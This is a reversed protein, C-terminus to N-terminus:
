LIFEDIVSAIIESDATAAALPDAMSEAIDASKSAGQVAAAAATMASANGATHPAARLLPEPQMVPMIPQRPNKTGNLRPRLTNDLYDSAMYVFELVPASVDLLRLLIYYFCGAFMGSILLKDTSILDALFGTWMFSFCVFICVFSIRSLRSGNEGISYSSYLIKRIYASTNYIPKGLTMCDSFRRKLLKVADNDTVAMKRSGNRLRILRIYDTLRFFVALLFTFSIGNNIFVGM